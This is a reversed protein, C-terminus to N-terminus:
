QPTHPQRSQIHRAHRSEQKYATHRSLQQASHASTRTCRTCPAPHSGLPTKPHASTAAQPTSCWFVTWDGYYCDQYHVMDGNITLMPADQTPFYRKEDITNHFGLKIINTYTTHVFSLPGILPGNFGWEIMQDDPDKRGHFLGLYLGPEDPESGYLPIANPNSSHM